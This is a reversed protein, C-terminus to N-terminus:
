GGEWIYTMKQHGFNNQRSNITKNQFCFFDCPELDHSYLSKDITQGIRHESLTEQTLPQNEFARQRSSATAWSILTQDSAAILSENTRHATFIECFCKAVHWEANLSM